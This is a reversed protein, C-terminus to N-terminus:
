GLVLFLVASLCSTAKQTCNVHREYIYKYIYFFEVMEHNLQIQSDTSLLAGVVATSRLSDSCFM